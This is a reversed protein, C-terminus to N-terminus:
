AEWVQTYCEREDRVMMAVENAKNRDAYAGYRYWEGDIYMMVKFMPEDGKIPTESKSMLDPSKGSSGLPSLSEGEAM